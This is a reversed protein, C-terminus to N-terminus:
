LLCVVQTVKLSSIGFGLFMFSICSVYYISVLIFSRPEKKRSEMPELMSIPPSMTCPELRDKSSLLRKKLPLFCSTGCWWQSSTQRMRVKSGLTCFRYVCFTCVQLMTSHSISVKGTLQHQGSFCCLHPRYYWSYQQCCYQQDPTRPKGRDGLLLSFQDWHQRVVGRPGHQLFLRVPGSLIPDRGRPGRDDHQRRSRHHSSSRVSSNDHWQFNGM